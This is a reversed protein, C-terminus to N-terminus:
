DATNDSEGEIKQFLNVMEIGLLTEEFDEYSINLFTGQTADGEYVEPFYHLEGVRLM